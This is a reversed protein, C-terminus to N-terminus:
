HNRNQNVFLHSLKLDQLFPKLDKNISRERTLPNLNSRDASEYKSYSLQEANMAPKMISSKNIYSSIVSIETKKKKIPRVAVPKRIVVDMPPFLMDPEELLGEM